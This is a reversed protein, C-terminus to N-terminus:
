RVSGSAKPCYESFWHSMDEFCTRWTVKLDYKATLLTFNIGNYEEVLSIRRTPASLEFINKSNDGASLLIWFFINKKLKFKKYDSYLNYINRHLSSFKLINEGFEGRCWSFNPKSIKKGEGETRTLFNWFRIKGPASSFEFFITFNEERCLIM